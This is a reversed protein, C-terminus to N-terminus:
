LKNNQFDDLGKQLGSMSVDEVIYKDLKGNKFTVIRVAPDQSTKVGIYEALRQGLGQSIKSVSYVLKKDQNEKAFNRFDTVADSDESDTLLFM